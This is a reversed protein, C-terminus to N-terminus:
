RDEMAEDIEDLLDAGANIPRSFYWWFMELLGTKLRV